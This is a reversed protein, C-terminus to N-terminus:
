ITLDDIVGYRERVAELGKEIEEETYNCKELYSAPLKLLETYFFLAAKLNGESSLTEIKDFLINETENIEGSDIMGKLKEEFAISAM